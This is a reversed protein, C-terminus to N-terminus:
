NPGGPFEQSTYYAQLFDITLPNESIVFEPLQKDVVQQIKVRSEFVSSTDIM